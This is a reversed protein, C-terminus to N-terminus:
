SVPWKRHFKIILLRRGLEARLCSCYVSLIPVVWSRPRISSLGVSEHHTFDLAPKVADVTRLNIRSRRRDILTVQRQSENHLM